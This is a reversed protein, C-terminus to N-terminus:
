SIRHALHARSRLHLPRGIQRFLEPPESFFPLLQVADAGGQHALAVGISEETEDESLGSPERRAVGAAQVEDFLVVFIDDGTTM